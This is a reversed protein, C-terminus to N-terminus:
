VLREAQQAISLPSMGGSFLQGLVGPRRIKQALFLALVIAVAAAVGMGLRLRLPPSFLHLLPSLLLAAAVALAILYYPRSNRDAPFNLPNVGPLQSVSRVYAVLLAAYLVSCLPLVWTLGWAPWDLLLMVPASLLLGRLVVLARSGEFTESFLEPLLMRALFHPRPRVPAPASAIGPLGM